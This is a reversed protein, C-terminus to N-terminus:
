RVLSLAHTDEHKLFPEIAIASRSKTVPPIANKTM